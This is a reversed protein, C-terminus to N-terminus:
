RTKYIPKEKNENREEDEWFSNLPDKLWGFDFMFSQEDDGDESQKYVKHANKNELMSTPVVAVRMSVFTVTVRM